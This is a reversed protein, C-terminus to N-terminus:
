VQWKDLSEDVLTCVFWGFIQYNLGKCWFRTRLKYKIM